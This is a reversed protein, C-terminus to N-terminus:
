LARRELYIKAADMREVQSLLKAIKRLTNINATLSADDEGQRAALVHEYRVLASEPQDTLLYLDGQLETFQIFLALNQMPGTNVFGRMEEMVEIAELHRDLQILAWFRLLEADLRHEVPAASLKRQTAVREALELARLPATKADIHVQALRAALSITAEADPGFIREVVSFAADLAARTKDPSDIANITTLLKGLAKLLPKPADGVLNQRHQLIRVYLALAQEPQDAQLYTDALADVARIVLSHTPDLLSELEAIREARLNLESALDQTAAAVHIQAMLADAKARRQLWDRAQSAFRDREADLLGAQWGRQKFLAFDALPGRRLEDEDPILPMAKAYLLWANESDGQLWYTHALNIQTALEDPDLSLSRECATRAEAFNGALLRSWCLSNWANSSEPQLDLARLHDREAESYQGQEAQLSGRLRLAKTDDPKLTLLQSWLVIAREPENRQM